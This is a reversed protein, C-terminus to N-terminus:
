ELEVGAPFGLEVTLEQDTMDLLRDWDAGGHARRNKMWAAALLSLGSDESIQDRTRDLKGTILLWERQTVSMIIRKLEEGAQEAQERDIAAQDVVAGPKEAPPQSAPPYAPPWAYSDTM